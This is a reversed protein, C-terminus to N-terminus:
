LGVLYIRAQTRGGRLHRLRTVYASAGDLATTWLTVTAGARPRPATEPRRGGPYGERHPRRGDEYGKDRRATPTTDYVVRRGLILEQRRYTSRVYLLRRGVKAPSLLLALTSRRLVRRRGSALNRQVIRSGAPAAAAFVLRARDLAPRSLSGGRRARGVTAAPAAPAALAVALIRGRARWAVHSDSLALADAGPARVALLSRLTQADAIVVQGDRLWAVRAGAVAPHTGPLAIKEGDRVLVGPGRAPQYAVLGGSASPDSASAFYTAARAAPPSAVLAAAAAVLGVAAAARLGRLVGPREGMAAAVAAAGDRDQFPALVGVPLARGAGFALGVALGTAPTGIALCAAALGWTAFSLLFTTFGLGLLVGYLGTAVPVPVIRRWSEPVQRRVQPVIRRGAADGLAAVLLAAVAVAAAAGGGAGLADGLLALGGFTAAGGGLAGLAFALAGVASTRRRGRCAGPALTDVM